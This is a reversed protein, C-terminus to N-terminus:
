NSLRLFLATLREPLTAIDEITVFRGRGFIEAHRGGATDGLAICFCDIGKASLMQVARRADAVLYARDPVDIDSPEGDTLLLVLRRHSAMQELSRGGYRIAAGIRTSWAPRLGTLGMGTAMGLRDDFKKVETIRMDERGRSSFASIALPDGLRDMALALIGAADRELELVSGSGTTDGTSRSSDLLLHVSISRNPASTGEYVRHDPLRGGRLDIAADIAADLDLTEGEAQRKLRRRQGVSAQSVLASTRRLAEPHREQLRQWFGPDGAGPVYRNVAVWDPREVKAAYDYEPLVMLQEGDQPAVEEVSLSGPAKEPPDRNPPGEGAEARRRDCTEIPLEHQQEPPEHMDDPFNWLGVNDDRYVPQVMYGKANFQVRTQGLDNGLLNGIQRSIAPDHLRGSQAEFLAAGKAVWGHKRPFDPDFLARALRAFLSPATAVGDPAIEHFAGWLRRLGPMDRMALTEVRADEILSVVAIQMPKLQGVEFPAGGYDLHAGVHAMAARYLLAERGRHDPFSSPLCLVGMGFSSRRPTHGTADPLAERLPPVRGWLARHGAVLAQELTRFIDEGAHRELLRRAEPTELRFFALRKAADRGAFRLGTDIWADLAEPPLRETLMEMRELLPLLSEPAARLVDLMREQWRAFAPSELKRAIAAATHLYLAAIRPRAKIAVRSAAPGLALAPETGLREAVQRATIAFVRPVEGGYGAGALRAHTAAFRDLADGPFAARTADPWRARDGDPVPTWRM